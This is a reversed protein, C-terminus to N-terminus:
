IRDVVIRHVKILLEVESRPLALAAAIGATDQGARHMRLVHTRKSLNLGSRAPEPSVLMGTQREVARLDTELSQVALRADGLAADLAEVLQRAELSRRFLGRIEAKLTVFLYLCLGFGAILLICFILPQLMFEPGRAIWLFANM